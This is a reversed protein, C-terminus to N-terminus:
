TAEVDTQAITYTSNSGVTMLNNTLTSNTVTQSECTEITWSNITGTDGNYYDVVKLTWDGNSNKGNFASLPNAPKATGSVPQACTITASAQDDYTVQIDNENACERNFIIVETNDPAILSIVLDQIYTHSIDLTVNVDSITINNSLTIVSTAAPGAINAGSGDPISVLTNNTSSSCINNPVTQFNQTPAYSGTACSNKGRVRWYYVTQNNLNNSLTYSTNTTTGTEVITNFGADTAVDIDYDTAGTIANWSFTTGSLAVNIAQNAPSVTSSSGISNENLHLVLDKSITKGGGTGTLTFNYVGGAVSGLNSITLTVTANASLNNASFSATAGSPLGSTSFTTAASYGGLVKFDFSYGADNPKCTTVSSAAPTLTFTPDTASTFQGTFTGRGFTTAMIGNDATRLDLDVVKVDQMGNNSSVWNPSAENFNKTSWIGLETGVMVENTALPNQLICKVPMDPLDGEKNNWTVGGNSTYWVSTVGYNHFTVMIEEESQGFEVSSISGVFSSGSIDEWEINALAGNAKKLRLLKGNDTGVLVTSSIATYPSVKFATPAGDLLANSLQDKTASSVGLTYRNIQKVSSTSGNSFMINLNHDLGAPSIFDGEGSNTDIDYSTGTYPLNLYTHNSYVYSVVMYNGDKDITSYAGDGGNVMTSSNTGATAGNIFQSGNDQAGALILENSTSPGYGGYYFQTTIYDKNMETFVSTNQATSLSSAYYVGGDCGIVAENSAGPRFTFAHQDAHVISCNLTNLNPNNSWKSIQKWKNATNTNTGSTSRFLDIGGVYITQDNAPDVEIVLDYFDQGRTFDTSSIGTDADNPKALETVSTFGNTTVYIHPGATTTGETLAYLKNENSSSVALEVRNSNALPSATAETWTTGNTSSFVRG